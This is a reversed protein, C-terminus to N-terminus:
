LVLSKRFETEREVTERFATQWAKPVYRSLIDITLATMGGPVAVRHIIEDGSMKAEVILRITAIATEQVLTNALESSLEPNNRAAEGAMCQLLYALLAPGGSAIGIAPRAQSETIVVPQSISGLLAELLRRDESTVRSGYMLLSIGAGIEQTISPILKGVRCPVRDELMKLPIAAATTLLLQAPSLEVAAEALVSAVDSAGLCLIILGCRAAVERNSAVHIAPFVASLADLKDSSQNAVWVDDAELAGSRLLARVLMGGMSGVGIVGTNM